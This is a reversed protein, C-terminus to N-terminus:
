LGLRQSKVIIAGPNKGLQAAITDINTNEEVLKKLKAEEEVSWRKRSVM